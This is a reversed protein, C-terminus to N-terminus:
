TCYIVYEWQNRVTISQQEGWGKYLGTADSLVDTGELHFHGAATVGECEEVCGAVGCEAGHPRAACRRRVNHHQSNGRIVADHRLRALRQSV